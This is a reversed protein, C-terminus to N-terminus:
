ADCDDVIARAERLHPAYCPEPVLASSEPESAVRGDDTASRWRVAALSGLKTKGVTIAVLADPDDADLAGATGVFGPESDAPPPPEDFRADLRPMSSRSKKMPSSATAFEFVYASSEGIRCPTISFQSWMSRKQSCLM